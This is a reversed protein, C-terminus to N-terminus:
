AVYAGTFYFRIIDEYNYGYVSAMANAGWQSMGCNHGWGSGTFSFGGEEQQINFRCNNLGLSTYCDRGPIRLENGDVDTYNIAIVNGTDSYEAAASAINGIEYERAQLRLAIDEGSRWATWNRISYDVAQEFPDPKGSLYPRDADFVNAGDETAGGDSAFYYIECVDGQYRVLQGATEDVASDTTENAEIVGRYVQSRTDDTLDFGYQAYENQNYVVYTRACVAQAKLAEYPWSYSMEYPIVGKVYDELGVYNIVNLLEGDYLACEFGGYYRDDGYITRGRGEQSISLLALSSEGPEASYIIESNATNIVSLTTRADTYVEGPLRYRDRIREAESRSSFSGYLVRYKGDLEVTYGGFAAASIDAEEQSEYEENILVHWAGGSSVSAIRVRNIDTQSLQVFQRNEDYYGIYFGQGGYNEFEAGSVADDGFDMGIKVTEVNVPANEYSSADVYNGRDIYTSGAPVSGKYVIHSVPEAARAVTSFAVFVAFFALICLLTKNKYIVPM